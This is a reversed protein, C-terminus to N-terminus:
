FSISKSTNFVGDKVPIIFTAPTNPKQTLATVSVVYDEGSNPLDTAVIGRVDLGQGLYAISNQSVSNGLDQFLVLYQSVVGGSSLNIVAVIDKRNSFTKTTAATGISVTSKSNSEATTFTASGNLLNVKSGDESVSVSANGLKEILKSDTKTEVVSPKSSTTDKSDTSSNDTTSPVSNVVSSTTSGKYLNYGLVALIIVVVVIILKKM